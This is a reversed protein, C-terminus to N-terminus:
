ILFKIKINNKQQSFDKLKKYVFINKYRKQVVINTLSGFEMYEMLVWLEDGVLFTNYIEVFNKHRLNRMVLIENFLLERRQQKWINM